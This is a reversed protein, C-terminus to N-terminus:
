RMGLNKVRLCRPDGMLPDKFLQFAVAKCGGRCLDWYPCLRCMSKGRLAQMKLKFSILHDENIVDIHGIPDDIYACPYLVGKVDVYFVEVRTGCSMMLHEQRLQKILDLLHKQYPITIPDESYVFVGRDWWYEQERKILKFYENVSPCIEEYKHLALGKPLVSRLNFINVGYKSLDRIMSRIKQINTKFITTRVVIPINLSKSRNIFDIVRKYTGIYGVKEECKM